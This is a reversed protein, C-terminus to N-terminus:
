KLFLIKHEVRKKIIDNASPAAVTAIKIDEESPKGTSVTKHLAKVCLINEDNTLTPQKQAKTILEEAHSLNNQEIANLILLASALGISTASQNDHPLSILQQLSEIGKDRITSDKSSIQIWANLAKLRVNEVIQMDLDALDM